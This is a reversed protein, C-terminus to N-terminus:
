KNKGKALDNWDLLEPYADGSKTTRPDYSVWVAKGTILVRNSRLTVTRFRYDRKKWELDKCSMDLYAKGPWGSVSIKDLSMREGKDTTLYGEVEFRAGDALTFHELSFGHEDHPVLGPVEIFLESWDGATKMLMEPKLELWQTALTMGPSVLVEQYSSFVESYFLLWVSLAIVAVTVSGTILKCRLKM